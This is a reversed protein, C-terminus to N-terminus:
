FLSREIGWFIRYNFFSSIRFRFSHSVGVNLILFVRQGILVTLSRHATTALRKSGLRNMFPSIKSFPNVSKVSFRSGPYYAIRDLKFLSSLDFEKILDLLASSASLKHSLGESEFIGFKRGASYALNDSSLFLVNFDRRIGMLTFFRMKNHFDIIYNVVISNFFLSEFFVCRFFYFKCNNFFFYYVM